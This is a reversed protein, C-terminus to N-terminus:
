RQSAIWLWQQEPPRCENLAQQRDGPDLADLIPYSDTRRPTQAIFRLERDAFRGVITETAGPRLFDHLEVLIDTDRLGPTADPDLVDVEAGEIDVIVLTNPTILAQLHEATAEGGVHVSVDNLAAMVRCAGQAEPSIDFGFIEADPMRRALGVVYWGEGCGIDIVRDYGQWSEILPHLESEYSGLRKPIHSGTTANGLKMGAFPGSAVVDDAVVREIRRWQADIRRRSPLIKRVAARVWPVSRLRTRLRLRVSAPTNAM